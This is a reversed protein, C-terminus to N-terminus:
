INLFDVMRSYLSLHFSFYFENLIMLKKMKLTEGSYKRYYPLSLRNDITRNTDPDLTIESFDKLRLIRYNLQRLVDVNVLIFNSRIWNNINEGQLVISKPNKDIHGVSVADTCALQFSTNKIQHLYIPVRENVTENVILVAQCEIGNDRIYDLGKQYGSFEFYSNDGEIIRIDLNSYNLYTFTSCIDQEFDSSTNNNVFIVVFRFLTKSQFYNCYNILDYITSHYIQFVVAIQFL